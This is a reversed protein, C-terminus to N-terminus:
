APRGPAGPKAKPTGSARAKPAGAPGPKQARNEITAVLDRVFGAVRDAEADTGKLVLSEVQVAVIRRGGIAEISFDGVTLRSWRVLKASARPEERPVASRVAIMVLGAAVPVLISYRIAPDEGWAIWCEPDPDAGFDVLVPRLMTIVGTPLSAPAPASKKWESLRM